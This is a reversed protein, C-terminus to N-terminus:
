RASGGVQLALAVPGSAEIEPQEVISTLKWPQGGFRERGIQLALEHAEVFSSAEITQAMWDACELAKGSIFWTTKRM